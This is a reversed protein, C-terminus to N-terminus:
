IPPSFNRMIELAFATLEDETPKWDPGGLLMWQVFRCHLPSAFTYDRTSEINSRTPKNYLWGKEVCTRLGPDMIEGPDLPDSIPKEGGCRLVEQLIKTVAPRQLHEMSPLGKSFISKRSLDRFLASVDINKTFIDSTYLRGTDKLGRYSDNTQIVDLLDECAGVHGGTLEYIGLLFQDDFYHGIFRKEIFEDFEPKTLLLGVEVGDYGHDSKHLGVVQNVHPSFIPLVDDQTVTSLDYSSFTIIRQRSSSDISKIHTWFSADWLTTQAEDVILVSGPEDNWVGSLWYRWAHERWCRLPTMWSSVIVVLARPEQKAIHHQLLNALTSKGSGPPGRVQLYKHRCLKEYIAAVTERRQSYKEINQPLSTRSLRTTSLPSVDENQSRFEEGSLSRYRQREPLPSHLSYVIATPAPLRDGAYAETKPFKEKGSGISQSGPRKAVSQCVAIIHLHGELPRSQFIESLKKASNLRTAFIEIDFRRDRFPEAITHDADLPLSELLELLSELVKYLILSDSALYNLDPYQNKIKHKLTGVTESQAINVPFPNGSKSMIWCCLTLKDDPVISFSDIDFWGKLLSGHWFLFACEGDDDPARKDQVVFNIIDGSSSSPLCVYFYQLSNQDILHHVSGERDVFVVEVHEKSINLYKEIKSTLEDWSPWEQFAVFQARTDKKLKFKFKLLEPPSTM